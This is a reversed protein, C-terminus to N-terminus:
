WATDGHRVTGVSVRVRFAAWMRGGTSRAAAYPVRACSVHVRWTVGECCAAISPDSDSCVCLRARGGGAPASRGHREGGEGGDGQALPHLGGLETSSSIVVMM